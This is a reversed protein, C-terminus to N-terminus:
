LYPSSLTQVYYNLASMKNKNLREVVVFYMDNCDKYLM